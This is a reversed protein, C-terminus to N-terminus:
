TAQPVPLGARDAVIVTLEALTPTAVGHRAGARLVAGAVADLEPMRGAEVDRQMSSRFDDHVAAIEELKAQADTPAGDATAVAAAERVVAELADHWRPDARIEGLTAGSASTVTALAVLRTLKGWLVALEDDHVDAPIGASRLDAAIPGLDVRRAPDTSALDIRLFPSTHAIEGPATRTSEVRIAAAVARGGFRERLLALHEIGNLLPIVLASEAEIRELAPQLATAKTAVILADAPEALREVSRPRTEFEGLRVSRVRLGDREIAAATEGRAVVTVAAGSRALAGAVLGGVGGPGLIAYARV